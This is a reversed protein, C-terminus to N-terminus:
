IICTYVGSCTTGTYDTGTCNCTYNDTSNVLECVGNSCPNDAVCIDTLVCSCLTSNFVYGDSCDTLGCALPSFVTIICFSLIVTNHAKSVM